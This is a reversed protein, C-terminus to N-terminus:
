AAPRQHDVAKGKTVVRSPQEAHCVLPSLDPLAGRGVISVLAAAPYAHRFRFGGALARRPLARQSALFLERGMAGLGRALLLRPVPLTLSWRRFCRALLGAFDRQRVPHPATANYAGSTGGQALLWCILRVLDDRHIWSLWQRGGGFILALGLEFPLLLSGLMGGDGDLVLGIRLAVAQLGSAPAEALAAEMAQCAAAAFGTGSPTSEGLVADGQDGYIGVASAGILLRPPVEARRCWALLSRTLEVRSTVIRRRRGATWPAAVPEGALHVIADLRTAPHLEALSGICRLPTPLWAAKRQDRLLLTVDHGAAVLAAVLRRGVFGSGGTVLLHQRRELFEDALGAAPTAPRRLTWARRADRWGWFLCGTAALTLLWAFLGQGQWVVTTPLAVAAWLRPALLALLVGYNLALLAHTVRESPPLLRSRDEEVFDVLTLVVEAALVAVLAVAWFGQWQLWALSFFIAGYLGNRVAHLVLERRATVRWTLRETMEHHYVIDFLGLLLQLALLVTIAPTFPTM